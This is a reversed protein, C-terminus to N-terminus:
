CNKYTQSTQLLINCMVTHIYSLMNVAYQLFIGLAGYCDWPCVHLFFFDYKEFVSINCNYQM